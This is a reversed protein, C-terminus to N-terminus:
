LAQRHKQGGGSKLYRWPRLAFFSIIAFFFPPFLLPIASAQTQNENGDVPRACVAAPSISPLSLFFVSQAATRPALSAGIVGWSLACISLGQLFFFPSPFVPSPSHPNEITGQNIRERERAM